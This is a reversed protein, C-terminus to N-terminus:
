FGRVPSNMSESQETLHAIAGPIGFIEPVGVLEGGYEDDGAVVVLVTGDDVGGPGDDSAVSQYGDPGALSRVRGPVVAGLHHIVAPLDEVLWDEPEVPMLLSSM